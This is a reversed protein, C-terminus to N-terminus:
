EVCKKIFDITHKLSAAKIAEDDYQSTSVRLHHHYQSDMEKIKELLEVGSISGFKAIKNLELEKKKLQFKINDIEKNQKDIEKIRDKLAKSALENAFAETLENKPKFFM